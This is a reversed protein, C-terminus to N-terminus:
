IRIVKRGFGGTYEREMCRSIRRTCIILDIPNTGGGSSKENENKHIIQM